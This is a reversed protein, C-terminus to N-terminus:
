VWIDRVMNWPERGGEREKVILTNFISASCYAQQKNPLQSVYIKHWLVLSLSFTLAALLSQPLFLWLCLSHCHCLHSSFSRPSLAHWCWFPSALNELKLTVSFPKFLKLSTQPLQSLFSTDIMPLWRLKKLSTPPLTMHIRSTYGFTVCNCKWVSSRLDTLKQFFYIPIWLQPMSLCKVIPHHVNYVNVKQKDWGYYIRM